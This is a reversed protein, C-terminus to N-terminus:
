ELMALAPAPMRHFLAALQEPAWEGPRRGPDAIARAAEIAQQLTEGSLGAARLNNLLTKRRHAFLRGTMRLFARRRPPAVLPAELPELWLM